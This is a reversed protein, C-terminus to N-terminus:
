GKFEPSHNIQLRVCLVGDEITETVNGDLIDTALSIIDRNIHSLKGQAGPYIDIQVLIDRYIQQLAIYFRECPSGGDDCLMAQLWEHIFLTMAMADRSPLLLRAGSIRIDPWEVNPSRQLYRQNILWGVAEKMDTTAPDNEAIVAHVAAVSDLRLRTLRMSESAQETRSSIDHIASIFDVTSTVRKSMERILVRLANTREREQEYLRANQVAIATETAMAQLLQMNDHTFDWTQRSAVTVTGLIKGQVQMPVTLSSVIGASRSLERLVTSRGDRLLNTSIIPDGRLAATGILGEGSGIEIGSLDTEDLGKVSVVRQHGNEPEVLCIIAVPVHLAATAASAMEQFITELNFTSRVSRTVQYLQEMQQLQRDLQDYLLSNEMALAAQNAYTSLLAIERSSFSRQRVDAVLMFGRAKPKIMMPVCIWDTVKLPKLKPFVTTARRGVQASSVDRRQDLVKRIVHNNYTLGLHGAIDAPIGVTTDPYVRIAGDNELWGCLVIPANLAQSAAHSVTAFIRHPDFTSTITESIYNINALEFLLHQLNISQLRNDIGVGIQEAITQLFTVQDGTFPMRCLALIGGGIKQGLRIDAVSYYRWNAQHTGPTVGCPGDDLSASEDAPHDLLQQMLLEIQEQESEPLVKSFVILPETADDTQLRAVLVDARTLGEAVHLLSQIFDGHRDSHDASAEVVQRISSQLLNVLHRENTRLQVNRLATAVLNGLSSLLLIDDYSFQGGHVHHVTIIGLCGDQGPLPIFAVPVDRMTEPWSEEGEGEDISFTCYKECTQRLFQLLSAPPRFSTMTLPASVMMVPMQQDTDWLWIACSSAGILAPVDNLTIRMISDQDNQSHLTWSLQTLKGLRENFSQEVQPLTAPAAFIEQLLDLIDRESYGQNDCCRTLAGALALLSAPNDILSLERLLSALTGSPASKEPLASARLVDALEGLFRKAQKQVKKSIEPHSRYADFAPSALWEELLYKQHDRLVAALRDYLEQNQRTTERM